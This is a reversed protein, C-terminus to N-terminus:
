ILVPVGQLCTCSRLAREVVVQIQQIRSCEPPVAHAAKPRLGRGTIPMCARCSGSADDDMATGIACMGELVDEGDASSKAAIEVPTAPQLKSRCAHM